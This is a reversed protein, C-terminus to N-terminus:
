VADSSSCVGPVTSSLPAQHTRARPDASDSTVSCCGAWPGGQPGQWPGRAAQRPPRAPAPFGASGSDLATRCPRRRGCPLTQQRHPLEPRVRQQSGGRQQGSVQREGGRVQSGLRTHPSLHFLREILTQPASEKIWGQILTTNIKATYLWSQQSRPRM